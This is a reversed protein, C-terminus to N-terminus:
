EALQSVTELKAVDVPDRPGDDPLALWSRATERVTELDDGGVGLLSWYDRDATEANPVAFLDMGAPSFHNPYKALSVADVVHAQSNLWGIPWHDWSSSVWGSGGTDAHSHEKLRTRAADFGSATGFACFPAGARMPLVLVVGPADDIEQWTAGARRPAAQWLADPQPKWYVDYREKSFPDLAALAHREGTREDTVLVDKWLKGAPCMGILEIPERAYGEHRDPLLSKYSQRRLVLGNTLCYFDETAEYARAGTQVNVGFYTWRVLVREPGREIVTVYSNKEQRGFQNFLEAWGDNGEFFQFCAGNGDSLEFFPCYSAEHAFVLRWSKGQWAVILARRPNADASPPSPLDGQYGGFVYNDVERVTVTAPWAVPVAGLSASVVAALFLTVLRPRTILVYM